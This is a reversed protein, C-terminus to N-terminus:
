PTTVFLIVQTDINKFFEVLISGLSHIHIYVKGQENYQPHIVIRKAHIDCSDTNFILKTIRNLNKEECKSFSWIEM